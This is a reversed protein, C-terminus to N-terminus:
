ISPIFWYWVGVTHIARITTFIWCFVAFPVILLTIANLWNYDGVILYSVVRSALTSLLPLGSLLSYHRTLEASSLRCMTM